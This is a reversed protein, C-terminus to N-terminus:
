PRGVVVTLLDVVRQPDELMAWTLRIVRWGEAVLLNQRHRDAEFVARDSHVLRGDVEIAVRQGPFAVDLFFQRGQLRVEFHASWGRYGVRRLLRHLKREAASWPEGRSDLLQRRREANGRRGRSLDLAVRLQALTVARRRLGEDIAGTGLSPTLDWTTLAPTTMRLGRHGIILEPAIRRRVFVFGATAPRAHSVAAVVVPVAIEPWYTVRAAAPGTLVARPVSAALAAIRM